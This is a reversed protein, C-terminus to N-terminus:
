DHYRESETMLPSCRSSTVQYSPAPRTGQTGRRQPRRPMLDRTTGAATARSVDSQTRAPREARGSFRQLRTRALRAWATPTGPGSKLDGFDPATPRDPARNSRIDPRPNGRMPESFDAM